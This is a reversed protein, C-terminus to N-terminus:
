KASKKSKGSKSKAKDSKSDSKDSKAKDSKKSKPAESKDSGSDGGFLGLPDFGLLALAVAPGGGEAKVPKPNVFTVIFALALIASFIAKKM